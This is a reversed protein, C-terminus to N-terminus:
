LNQYGYPKKLTATPTLYADGKPKQIQRRIWAGSIAHKSEFELKACIFHIGIDRQQNNIEFACSEPNYLRNSHDKTESYEDETPNVNIKFEAKKEEIKEKNVLASANTLEIKLINDLEELSKEFYTFYCKCAKDLNKTSFDNRRLHNHQDPDKKDLVLEPKNDIVEKSRVAVTEIENRKRAKQIFSPKIIGSMHSTMAAKVTKSLVTPDPLRSNTKSVITKMKNTDIGNKIIAEFPEPLTRYEKNRKQGKPLEPIFDAFAKLYRNLLNNLKSKLSCGQNLM